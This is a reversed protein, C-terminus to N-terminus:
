RRMMARSKPDATVRGSRADLMSVTNDYANAVFAHGVRADVAVALPRRGAHVTRVVQGTDSAVVSVTNSDWNTVFLRRTAQDVAGSACAGCWAAQAHTM